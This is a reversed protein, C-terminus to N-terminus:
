FDPLQRVEYPLEFDSPAPAASIATAEFTSGDQSEVFLLVGNDGFCTNSVDGSSSKAAYCRAAQGAITRSTVETVDLDEPDDISTLGAIVEEFGLASGADPENASCVGEGPPLGLLAAFEGAGRFCVGSVDPTQVITIEVTEGGEESKLDFRLRDPGDKYWTVTGSGFDDGPTGRLAYQGTYVAAKFREIDSRLQKTESSPGGGSCAAFAAALLMATVAILPIRVNIRESNCTIQTNAGSM